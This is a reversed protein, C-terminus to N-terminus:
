PGHCDSDRSIASNRYLKKTDINVGKEKCLALWDNWELGASAVDFQGKELGELAKEPAQETLVLKIKTTEEFKEKIPKFINNMPAAGGSIRIEDAASVHSSFSITLAAAVAFRSLVM